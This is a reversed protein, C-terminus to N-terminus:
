ILDLAKEIGAQLAETYTDYHDYDGLDELAMYNRSKKIDRTSIDNVM